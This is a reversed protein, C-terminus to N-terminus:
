HKILHKVTLVFKSENNEQYQKKQRSNGRCIFLSNPIFM